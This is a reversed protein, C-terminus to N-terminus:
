GSATVVVIGAMWSHYTCHYRYTGTSTFTYTWSGGAAIYGSDFLSTDSTVTHATGDENM